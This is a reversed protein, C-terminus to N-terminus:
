REDALSDDALFSGGAGGCHADLFSQLLIQAAVKDVRRGRKRPGIGGARLYREAEVTTLREDWTEVPLGARRELREKFEMVERAKRGVSGDMNRPLGLVIRDVDEDRGLRELVGWLADEGEVVELARALSGTPDSLALGIRKEGYDIGLVRGM